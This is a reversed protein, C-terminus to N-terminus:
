FFLVIFSRMVVSVDLNDVKGLFSLFKLWRMVLGFLSCVVYVSM